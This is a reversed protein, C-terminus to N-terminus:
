KGFIAKMSKDLEKSSQKMLKEARKAARQSKRQMLILSREPEKAGKVAWWDGIKDFVSDDAYVASAGLSLVICLVAAVLAVRKMM